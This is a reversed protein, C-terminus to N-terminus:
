TDGRESANEAAEEFLRAYEAASKNWSFDEAMARRILKAWEKKYGYAEHARIIAILLSFPDFECFVFGNGEEEGSRFDAVSDALGGVKHVIPICGYRMAEMQGLGCPEFRSPVLLADAGAYIVRPLKADFFFHGAVRDPYRKTLDQFYNRYTADGDGLVVLQFDINALMPEIIQNILGFGKQEDMRSVIGIVFKDPDEPLNFHRQLALKNETKGAPKKPSYNTHIDPDTAPDFYDTDIGNLIGFLRSRREELLKHLGEGFEETLIERAYAASVTNVVDAYMVGRRIGNMKLLQPDFFHPLQQQGSDFDMEPVYRPDFLGQFKLNHITFVTRIRSLRPDDRYDTRLLNPIFGTQWDSAVIIDPIWDSQKLFEITGRSLLAWRVTDDGYGYVNARKEYYEENELFYAIPRGKADKHMLVNCVLLGFPDKEQDPEIQLESAVVEVPYKETDMVAYKPILIRADYGLRRLAAPLSRMVEGLGGVKIFPAGESAVFLIKLRKKGYLIM